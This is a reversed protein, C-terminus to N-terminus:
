DDQGELETDESEGAIQASMMLIDTDLIGLLLKRGKSPFVQYFRNISGQILETILRAQEMDYSM